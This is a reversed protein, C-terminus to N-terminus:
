GLQHTMFELRNGAVDWRERRQGGAARELRAARQTHRFAGDCHGLQAVGTGLVARAANQNLLVPKLRHATPM